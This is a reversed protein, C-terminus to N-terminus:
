SLSAAYSFLTSDYFETEELPRSLAPETLPGDAHSIMLLTMKISRNHSHRSQVYFHSFVAVDAISTIYMSM